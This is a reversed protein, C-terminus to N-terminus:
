SNPKKGVNQEDEVLIVRALGKPTVTSIRFTIAASTMVNESRWGEEESTLFCTAKFLGLQSKEKSIAHKHARTHTHKSSNGARQQHIVATVPGDSRTTQGRVTLRGLKSGGCVSNRHAEM